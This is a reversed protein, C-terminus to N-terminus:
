LSVGIVSHVAGDILDKGNATLAVVTRKVAGSGVEETKLLGKENLYALNGRIDSDSTLFRLEVLQKKVTDIDLPDPYVRNLIRLIWGREKENDAEFNM